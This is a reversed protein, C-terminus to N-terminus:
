DDNNKRTDMSNTWHQKSETDTTQQTHGRARKGDERQRRNHSEHRTTHVARKSTDHKHNKPKGDQRNTLALYNPQGM